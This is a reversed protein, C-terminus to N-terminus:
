RRRAAYFDCGKTDTWPGLIGSGPHLCTGRGGEQDEIFEKCGGCVKATSRAQREFAMFFEMESDTAGYPDFEEPDFVQLDLGGGTTGHGGPQRQRRELKRNRRRGM